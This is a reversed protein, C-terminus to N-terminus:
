NGIGNVSMAGEREEERVLMVGSGFPGIGGTQGWCSEMSGRPGEGDTFIDRTFGAGATRSASSEFVANLLLLLCSLLVMLDGRVRELFINEENM